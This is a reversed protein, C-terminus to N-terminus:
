LSLQLRTQFFQTAGQIGFRDLVGYGYVFELRANNTMHWNLMPTLRWFRGGDITGSKLDTYSYRLVLEFAGPGGNFLPRAPSIPHFYAEAENYQRIEKTLTYAAFIEGGHFLPSGTQPSSVKNLFYESGFMLPGPRYYLEFGVINNGTSPIKGTDIFYSQALYSEPKSRFQLTGNLSTGHRYELAAHLVTKSESKAFPLWVTRIAVQSDNKAYNQQNISLANTFWGINYVLKNGFGRGIWKFGDGLIPIFADNATARENTWGYYGVMIKSTSFGEKTRGVFLNGDLEPVDLMLGTQRFRWEDNAGDYMYGITYSVRPLFKFKGKALLRFDRLGIDPQLGIQEKSASNQIYSATDVLIGGGIRLTFLKNEFENWKKKDEEFQADEAEAADLKDDLLPNKATTSVEERSDNPVTAWGQAVPVGFFVGVAILRILLNKM